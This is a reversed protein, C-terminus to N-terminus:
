LNGTFSVNAAGATNTVTSAALGSRNNNSASLWNGGANFRIFDALGGVIGTLMNNNASVSSANEIYMGQANSAASNHVNNGNIQIAYCRVGGTGRIDVAAGGGNPNAFFNNTIFLNHLEGASPSTAKVHNFFGYGSMYLHDIHIDFIKSNTGSANIRIGTATGTHPGEFQTGGTFWVDSLSCGNDAELICQTAGGYFVFASFRIGGFVVSTGGASTIAVGQGSMTGSNHAPGVVQGNFFNLDGCFKSSDATIYFGTSNARETGASDGPWSACRHFEALRLNQIFFNNDFGSAMVDEVLSNFYGTMSAGSMGIALGAGAGSGQTQQLVSFGILRWDVVAGDASAVVVAYYGSFSAKALLTTGFNTVGGAGYVRWEITTSPTFRITSGIAYIGVSFTLSFESGTSASSAEVCAIARQIAPADDTSGNHIAGWWEPRVSRIGTITGNNGFIRVVGAYVPSSFNVTIGADPCLVAGPMFDFTVTGSFNLNAAIRYNGPPIIVRKSAGGAWALSFANSCDTGTGSVTISGQVWTAENMFDLISVTDAAKHQWTRTFSSGPQLFGNWTPNSGVGNTQLLYGSTSATPLAGSVAGLATQVFATTALSTDNDGATPTPAKPDGTFVPSALPAKLAISPDTPHVHDGRAYLLSTGPAATGDQLPNANSPSPGSPMVPLNWKVGDWVYGAYIDGPAPAAPHTSNPPFDFATM